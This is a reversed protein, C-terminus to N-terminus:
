GSIRTRRFSSYRVIIWKSRFAAFDDGLEYSDFEDPRDKKKTPDRYTFILRFQPRNGTPMAPAKPSEREKGKETEAEESGRKEEGEKEAAPLKPLEAAANKALAESSPKPPEELQLTVKALERVAGKLIEAQESRPHPRKLGSCALLDFDPMVGNGNPYDKVSFISVRECEVTERAFNVLSWSVSELEIDGALDELLHSYTNLRTVEQSLDLSRRNRLYAALEDCLGILMRQWGQVTAQNAPDFWVHLVGTSKGDAVVPVFFQQYPTENFLEVTKEAVSSEKKLNVRSGSQNSLPQLLQVRKQAHATKSANKFAADQLPNERLNLEELRNGYVRKLGNGNLIEYSLGRPKLMAEVCSAHTKLYASLEPPDSALQKLKTSVNAALRNIQSSSSSPAEGM